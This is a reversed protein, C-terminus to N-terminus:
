ASPGPWPGELKDPCHSAEDSSDDEVDKGQRGANLMVCWLVEEKTKEERIGSPRVWTTPRSGERERKEGDTQKGWAGAGINAKDTRFGDDEVREGGGRREGEIDARRKGCKGKASM